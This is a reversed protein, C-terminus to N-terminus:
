GVFEIAFAEFPRLAVKQSLATRIDHNTVLCTGSAGTVAEPLDVTVPDGSFNAIVVIRSGARRREYAFIRPHEPLIPFYDGYVVTDNSKRLEILKRYHHFISAPDDIQSAVNIETFNPNLGLWPKGTTFGAETTADWQMPTRGNDRGSVYIGEMVEDHPIGAAIREAYVRRAQVDEYDTISPFRVNTMGIEEGQYVYPTGKMLHLVTALMTASERRFVGPDGYKSVARPLDHNNWFLANWSQPLLEQQWRSLISKLRVLDFPLPKWKDHVPDRDFTIHEFQFVQSLEKRAPEAYLNGIAPTAGWTEGVTMVDRGEFTHRYMEQLYDHLRPGNEIIGLDPVKGIYDIVDLRFGSIGRDLWWNMMAHIERRLVENEWNLDPQERAFLHYYYEGSAEDLTWASGCFHSRRDTPPSGNAKPKRWIYYDRYPSDPSSVAQQFWPHRDSTHNVVLDMLIRIGRKGAEDILLQMTALDGFEPAIDRYDSIDYGHDIMPSAYVPCLWIVDIGLTQLYDLKAVIGAIDGIGDGNSDSFSRPYIQYVTARHWWKESVNTQM